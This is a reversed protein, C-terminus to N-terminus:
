ATKHLASSYLFVDTALDIRRRVYYFHPKVRKEHLPHFDGEGRKELNETHRPQLQLIFWSGSSRISELEWNWTHPRFLSQHSLTPVALKRWWTCPLSLLVSVALGGKELM